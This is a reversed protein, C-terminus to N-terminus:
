YTAFPGYGAVGKLLLALALAGPMVVVVADAHSCRLLVAAPPPLWRAFRPVCRDLSLQRLARVGRGRYSSYHGVLYDLRFRQRRYRHPHHRHFSLHSFLILGSYVHQAFGHREPININL